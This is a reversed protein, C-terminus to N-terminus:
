SGQLYTPNTDTGEERYDLARGEGREGAEGGASLQRSHLNRTQRRRVMRRKWSQEVKTRVMDSPIM